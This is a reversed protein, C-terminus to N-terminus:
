ALHHAVHESIFCRACIWRIHIYIYQNLFRKSVCKGVDYPVHVSSIHQQSIKKQMKFKFKPVAAGFAEKRTQKIKYPAAAIDKVHYHWRLWYMM